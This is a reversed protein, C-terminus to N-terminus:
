MEDEVVSCFKFKSSTAVVADDATNFEILSNNISDVVAVVIADTSSKNVDVSSAIVADVSAIGLSDKSM